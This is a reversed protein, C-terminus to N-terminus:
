VMQPDAVVPCLQHLSAASLSPQSQFFDKGRQKKRQRSSYFRSEKPRRSGGAAIAVVPVAPAVGAVGTDAPDDEAAAVASVAMDERSTGGWDIIEPWFLNCILFFNGDQDFDSKGDIKHYKRM